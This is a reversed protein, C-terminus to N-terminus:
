LISLYIFLTLSVFEMAATISRILMLYSFRFIFSIKLRHRRRSMGTFNLLLDVVNESQMILMFSVFLGLTGELVRLVISLAWKPKGAGEFPLFFNPKYWDRLLNMANRIDDQTM